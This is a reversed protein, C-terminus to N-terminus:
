DRGKEKTCVDLMYSETLFDLKEIVPNILKNVMVCDDLTPYGVKDIVVRLYYTGNEKIYKCDDLILGKEEIPKKIYEAVKKGIDM